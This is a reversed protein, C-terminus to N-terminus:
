ILEEIFLDWEDPEEEFYKGEFTWSEEDFEGEGQQIVYGLLPYTETLRDEGWNTIRVDLGGGTVIRGTGAKIALKALELDFELMM